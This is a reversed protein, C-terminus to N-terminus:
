YTSAPTLHPTPYSFFLRDKNEFNNRGSNNQCIIVVLLHLDATSFKANDYNKICWLKKQYNKVLFLKM